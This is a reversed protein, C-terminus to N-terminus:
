KKGGINFIRGEEAMETEPFVECAEQLFEHLSKYRSSYHGLILQHAGAMKAILAADKATSHLKERALSRDKDLFTSEHFLCDVGRVQGIIDEFYGTDTCYAYSAPAPPDITYDSNQLLKGEATLFDSGKQLTHFAEVPIDKDAIAAKSIKRPRPQERFVFGCTPIRHLLPLSTVTLHKDEFIIGPNESDLSHYEIPFILTTQSIKLQIDIAEKLEPFSYIHLLRTRGLLHFTTLLGILGYYHDGHLHTIFIHDIRQFRIKMKRMQIQTGEACDLLIIHKGTDLVQSSSHRTSTPAASNSGLITLTFPM